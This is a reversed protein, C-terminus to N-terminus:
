FREFVSEKIKYTNLNKLILKNKKISWERVIVTNDVDDFSLSLINDKIKWEFSHSKVHGDNWNNTQYGTYDNNFM